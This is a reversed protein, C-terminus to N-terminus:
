AINVAAAGRGKLLWSIACKPNILTTATKKRGHKSMFNSINIELVNQYHLFLDATSKYTSKCDIWVSM